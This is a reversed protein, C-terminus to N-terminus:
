RRSVRKSPSRSEIQHGGCDRSSQLLFDSTVKRSKPLKRHRVALAPPLKWILGFRSRPAPMARALLLDAGQAPWRARGEPQHPDIVSRSLEAANERPRRSDHLTIQVRTM